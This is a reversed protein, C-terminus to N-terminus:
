EVKTEVKFGFVEGAQKFLDAQRQLSAVADEMTKREPSGKPTSLIRDVPPKIAKVAKETIDLQILIKENLREDLAALLKDLGTKKYIDAIGEANAIFDNHTNDSFCSQEDEQSGSDLATGMRESALEFGSLTAVGTLIKELAKDDKLFKRRYNGQKKPDWADTLSRLDKVLLATVIKLYERRRVSAKDHGDFDKFSRAGPGEASLDQGWLLFEVAHYGTTVDSEDTKANRAILAKESIEGNLKNIIGASPDGKVYDIVAENLPWANIRTEIADIPGEYFRFAETRGYPGRAALWAERANKLTLENPHSLLDSVALQLYRATSHAERYNDYALDAYAALQPRADYMDGAAFAPFATLMIILRLLKRM